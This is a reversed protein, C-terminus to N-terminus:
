ALLGKGKAQCPRIELNPKLSKLSEVFFYYHQHKEVDGGEKGGFIYGGIRQRVIGFIVAVIKDVSNKQNNQM